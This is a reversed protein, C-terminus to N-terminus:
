FPLEEDDMLVDGMEQAFMDAGAPKGKGMPEAPQYGASSGANNPKALFEIDEAVIETVYRKVGNKDDYSRTQIEGVVAVQQGKVLYKACTEALGRWAVINFYDTMERNMRRNVAIGFTCVSVGSPTQRQEPANTLRGILFAKNM